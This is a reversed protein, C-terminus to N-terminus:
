LYAHAESPPPTPPVKCAARDEGKM